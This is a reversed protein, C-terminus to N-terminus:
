ESKGNTILIVSEEMDELSIYQEKYEEKITNNEMWM